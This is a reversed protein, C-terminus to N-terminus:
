PRSTPCCGTSRGWSPLRAWPWSSVAPRGSVVMTGSYAMGHRDGVPADVPVAETGKEVPLSEGTLAAEQVRLEKVEILRLDAPVRDGSTLLVLDGPVLEAADIECRQGDRAVTAHPSLMARIADLM